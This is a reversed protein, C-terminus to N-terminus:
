TAFSYVAKVAKGLSLRGIPSRETDIDPQIRAIEEFDVDDFSGDVGRMDALASFRDLSAQEVEPKALAMHRGSLLSLYTDPREGAMTMVEDPQSWGDKDFMTIHLAKASGSRFLKGADGNRLSPIALVTNILDVPHASFTRRQSVAEGIGISALHKLLEVAELTLQLADEPLEKLSGPRVFCPATLDSYNSLVGFGIAAARSRGAYLSRDPRLSESTSRYNRSIHGIYNINDASGALGARIASGRPEVLMTAYDRDNLGSMFRENFGKERTTWPTTADVRADSGLHNPTNTRAHYRHRTQPPAEGEPAGKATITYAELRTMGGRYAEEDLMEVDVQVSSGDQRELLFGGNPQPYFELDAQGPIIEPGSRGTEIVAPSGAM